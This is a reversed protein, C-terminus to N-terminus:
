KARFLRSLLSSKKEEISFTGAMNTFSKTIKARRAIASIPRGTNIARLTTPYDNPVLWFPKQKVTDEFDQLSIERNKSTYRNVVIKIKEKPLGLDVLIDFFRRTNRVAPLTLASVLFLASSIGLATITIDDLIHGSDLIVYDFSAQLLELTRQVSEPTLLGIEQVAEVSPLIALGSAHTSLVSQMFTTDLRAMNKTIDGFTHTPKLDLFLAVDGFQRNLDVLAVTNKPNVQRLAIALNVAVTTTGVGGKSGLLNLLEGKKTEVPKRQWHRSQLRKLAQEVEERAVPQPLFERVGARLAELLVAPDLHPSTLFIETGPSAEKISHILSFTESPDDDMELVILQPLEASQLDQLHFTGHATLIATFADRLSTTNIHLGVTISEEPM